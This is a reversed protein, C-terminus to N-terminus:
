QIKKNDYMDKDAQSIISSLDMNFEEVVYRGVNASISLSAGLNKILPGLSM